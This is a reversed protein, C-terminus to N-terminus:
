YAMSYYVREPTSLALHSCMEAAEHEHEAFRHEDDIVSRLDIVLVLVAAIPQAPARNYACRQRPSCRPPWGM